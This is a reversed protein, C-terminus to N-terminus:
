AQGVTAISALVQSFAMAPAGSGNRPTGELLQINGSEINDFGLVQNGKPGVINSWKGNDDVGALTYYIGSKGEKKNKREKKLLFIKM